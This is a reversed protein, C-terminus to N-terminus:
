QPALPTTPQAPAPRAPPTSPLAGKELQQKAAERELERLVVQEEPTLPTEPAVAPPQANTIPPPAIAPQPMANTTNTLPLTAGTAPLRSNRLALLKQGPSVTTPAGPTAAAPMPPPVPGTPSLAAPSAQAAPKPADKDLTLTMITGFNNLRVSGAKEDVQLVEIDGDRQGEALMYTEEKAAEGPKAPFLAKMIALKRGLVTTIGNLVIKPLALPPPDNTPPPPAPKLAFLNREPISQYHNPSTESVVANAGTCVILGALAGYLIKSSERMTDIYGSEWVFVVPSNQNRLNTPRIKWVTGPDRATRPESRGGVCLSTRSKDVSGERDSASRASSPERDPPIRDGKM